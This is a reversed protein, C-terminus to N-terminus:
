NFSFSGTRKWSTSNIQVSWWGSGHAGKAHTTLIELRRTTANNFAIPMAITAGCPVDTEALTTIGGRISVHIRDTNDCVAYAVWTGARLSGLDVSGPANGGAGGNGNPDNFVTQMQEHWTNFGAHSPSASSCGSLTLSAGAVLTLTAMLRPLRSRRTLAVNRVAPQQVVFAHTWPALWRWM